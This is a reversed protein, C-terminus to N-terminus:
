GIYLGLVYLTISLIHLISSFVDSFALMFHWPSVDLLQYSLTNSIPTKLTNSFILVRLWNVEIKVPFFLSSSIKGSIGVDLCPKNKQLM